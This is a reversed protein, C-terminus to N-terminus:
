QGTLERIRALVEEAKEAEYDLEANRQRLDEILIDNSNAEASNKEILAELKKCTKNFTSLISNLSAM